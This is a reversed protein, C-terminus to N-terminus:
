QRLRSSDGEQESISGGAPLNWTCGGCAMPPWLQQAGWSAGVKIGGSPGDEEGKVILWGGGRKRSEIFCCTRRASRQHDVGCVLSCLAM